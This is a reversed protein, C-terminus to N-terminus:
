SDENMERHKKYIDYQGHPMYQVLYSPLIAEMTHATIGLGELTRGESRANDSVVNDKQLLKVQDVTLLPNPLLQLFRAQLRAMSFSVGLLKRRRGIIKLLLELCERFSLARPGGLEYITGAKAEGNLAKITAAAVDGVFVPQFKTKGGGVLPLVPSIKAMSGFRNFFSDDPGFIISPRLIIANPTNEQIFEEGAAKTRAYQSSSQGDAGIASIHVFREIGKAKVEESLAKLAKAQVDEFTQKGSESLIGVLNVVADAGELARAISDRYRLNAQIPMIQGAAGLPQLHTALDPRRVAVRIRAGRKALARVVHRGVFGSGGFVVVLKDELQNAM